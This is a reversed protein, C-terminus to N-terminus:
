ISTTGQPCKAKLKIQKSLGSLLPDKALVETFSYFYSVRLEIQTVVCNMITSVRDNHKMSPNCADKNVDINILQAQLLHGAM